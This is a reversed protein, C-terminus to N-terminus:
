RGTKLRSVLYEPLGAKRMKTQTTQNAYSFRHFIVTQEIDDYLCYSGDASGDRPQGISGCNVIYRQGEQLYRVEGPQVKELSIKWFNEQSILQPWHTHSVFSLRYGTRRFSWLAKIYSNLYIWADPSHPSAHCYCVGDIVVRHRLTKLFNVSEDSLRDMTWFIADRADAHMDYPSSDWIAASDHNGLVVELNDLEQLLTICENPDPGYGIIDGLFVFRDPQEEAMVEMFAQLAELNAHVDAFVAIKL